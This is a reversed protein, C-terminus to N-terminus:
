LCGYQTSTTCSTSYTCTMSDGYYYSWPGASTPGDYVTYSVTITGRSWVAAVAHFSFSGSGPTTNIIPTVSGPNVAWAASPTLLGMAAVMAVVVAVWRRRSIMTVGQVGRLTM